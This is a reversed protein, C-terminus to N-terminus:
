GEDPGTTYGGAVTLAAMSLLPINLTISEINRLELYRLLPNNNNNNVSSLTPPQLKNSNSNVSISPQSYSIHQHHHNNNTTLDQPVSTKVFENANLSSLSNDRRNKTNNCSTFTKGVNTTSSIIDSRVVVGCLSELYVCPDPLCTGVTLAIVLLESYIADLNSILSLCAARNNNTVQSRRLLQAPSTLCTSLSTSLSSSTTPLIGNDYQSNLSIPNFSGSKSNIKSQKSKKTGVFQHNKNKDEHKHDEKMEREYDSESTDKSSCITSLAFMCKKIYERTIHVAQCSTALTNLQNLWSSVVTHNKKYSRRIPAQSYKRTLSSYGVARTNRVLLFMKRVVTVACVIPSDVRTNQNMISRKQHCQRKRDYIWLDVLEHSAASNTADKFLSLDTYSFGAGALTNCSIIHQEIPTPSAASSSSEYVTSGAEDELVCNSSSIISREKQNAGVARSFVSEWSSLTTAM